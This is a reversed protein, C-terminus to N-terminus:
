ERYFGVGRRLVRGREMSGVGVEYCEEVKGLVGYM